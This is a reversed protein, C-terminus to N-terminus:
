LLLAYLVGTSGWAKVESAELEREAEGRAKESCLLVFDGLSVLLGEAEQLGECYEEHGTAVADGEAILSSVFFAKLVAPTIPLEISVITAEESPSGPKVGCL